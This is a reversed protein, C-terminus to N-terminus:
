GLIHLCAYSPNYLLVCFELAQVIQARTGDAVYVGYFHVQAHVAINREEVRMLMGYQEFPAQALGESLSREDIQVDFRQLRSALRLGPRRSRTVFGSKGDKATLGRAYLGRFGSKGCRKRFIFVDSKKSLFM